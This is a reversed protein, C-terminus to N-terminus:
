QMRRLQASLALYRSPPEPAIQPEADGFASQVSAVAIFPPAQLRKFASSKMNSLVWDLDEAFAAPDDLGYFRIWKGVETGLLRDKLYREIIDCASAYRGEYSEQGDGLLKGVLWDHYFWKMPDVQGSSLEASPMTEWVYGDDTEVPLLNEPIVEYGFTENIDLALGFLKVKTLDGIPALAGISDGYLTAYGLAAEVRNGNNVVVGGEIASFTSLLNSRTRAQVNELILGQLLSRDYGFGSLTTGLSSIMHGISGSRFTIGLMQALRAANGRTMDSNFRTALNYGVVRGSGFALVLLAAVVSSDLGGSLGIVWKANGGFVQEDFRRMTMVLGTLLKKSCPKPAEVADNLSFTRVDEVFDDRLTLLRSGDAGYATTGGDFTQLRTARDRIGVPRLVICSALDKGDEARDLTYPRTDALVSFDCSPDRRGLSIKYTEGCADLMVTDGTIDVRSDNLSILHINDHDDFASQVLMIDASKDLASDILRDIAMENQSPRGEVINVQGMAIKLKSLDGM